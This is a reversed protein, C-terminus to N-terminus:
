LQDLELVWLNEEVVENYMEQTKYQDPVYSLAWLVMQVAEHCMRQTKFQHVYWINLLDKVYQCLKLFM